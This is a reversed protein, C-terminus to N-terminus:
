REVMEAGASEVAGYGEGDQGGQKGLGSLVKEVLFEGMREGGKASPEVRECYDTTDKGNLVEFLPVAIVESGPIRIQQTALRFLQRIVEQVKDPNRNYGLIRLVVEAWSNGPKEDLYYIMCVLILKPKQKAVIRSVISQIRTSFLHIMYGMGPPFACVNSLMGCCLYDECPIACGCSCNRLCATTTCCVLSCVSLATCPSPKLAIDNGGVSIILVDDSRINDRIFQDQPLLHHYARSGITSEEVACNVTAYESRLGRKVFGNNMWHAIDKKSVPPDLILEYGNVARTEDGFWYKNDLSSDGALFVIRDHTSRLQDHVIQLDEVRHGHYEGYFRDSRIRNTM